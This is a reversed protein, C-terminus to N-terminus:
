TREFKVKVLFKFSQYPDCKKHQVNRVLIEIFTSNHLNQWGVLGYKDERFFPDCKVHRVKKLLIQVQTYNHLNPWDVPGYRVTDWGWFPDCKVHRM